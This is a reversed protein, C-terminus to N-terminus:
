VDRCGDGDVVYFRTTEASYTASFPLMPNGFQDVLAGPTWRWRFDPTVGVLTYRATDGDVVEARRVVGSNLILDDTGVSDPDITANFHVELSTRNPKYTAPGDDMGMVADAGVGALYELAGISGKGEEIVIYGITEPSRMPNPDEGVHKGVFLADSSPPANSDAGRAWFVSFAPDNASMVQGVVVPSAYANRYSQEEGIWSGAGDTVISEVRVRKWTPICAKKLSSMISTSAWLPM